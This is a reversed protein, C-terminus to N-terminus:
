PRAERNPSPNSAPGGHTHGGHGHHMILHMLPCLLVLLFPLAGFLHARHETFLFFGLAAVVCAAVVLVTSRATAIILPAVLYFQWELSISWAAPLFTMASLPLIEDPPVGHLMTAHMLAHPLWNSWSQDAIATVLQVHEAVGPLLQWPATRVFWPWTAMLLFGAIFGDALEAMLAKREHMTKVVRLDHIDLHGIEFTTLHETIVGTVRGGAALVANAVTGMLGVNGGGYVLEIGRAALERGLQQAAHM